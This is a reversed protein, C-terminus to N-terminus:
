LRGVSRTQCVVRLVVRKGKRESKMAAEWLPRIIQRATKLEEEHSRLPPLTRLPAPTQDAALLRLELEQPKASTDVLQGYFHYAPHSVFIPPKGEPM